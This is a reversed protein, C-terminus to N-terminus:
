VPAAALHHLRVHAAGSSSARTLTAPLRHFRVRYGRRVGEQHRLLLGAVGARPARLRLRTRQGHGGRRACVQGPARACAGGGPVGGTGRLCPRQVPGAIVCVSRSLRAPVRAGHCPATERRQGPWLSARAQVACLRRTPDAHPRTQARCGGPPTHAADHM